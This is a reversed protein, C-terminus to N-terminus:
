VTPLNLIIRRLFLFLNKRLRLCAQDGLKFNGPLDDGNSLLFRGIHNSNWNRPDPPFVDSQSAMELAIQRGIFGQPCLDYLFYPLDDYVGNGKDGQLVESMGNEAEVFFGGHALPRINAVVVHTGHADVMVLPLRDNAGFANCTVAYRVSRGEPLKIVSDGMERLNRAVTPQSFGTRLQIEKSTAPGKELFERIPSSM